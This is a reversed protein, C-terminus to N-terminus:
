RGAPAAEVGSETRLHRAFSDHALEVVRELAGPEEFLHPPGLVVALDEPCRFRELADRNWSLV